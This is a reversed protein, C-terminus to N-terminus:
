FSNIKDKSVILMRSNNEETAFFIISLAIWPFSPNHSLLSRIENILKTLTQHTHFGKSHIVQGRGIEICDDPLQYSSFDNQEIECALMVMGVYESIEAFRTVDADSYIEPFKLGYEPKEIFTNKCQIVQCGADSFYKAVSSPCVDDDTTWMFNAPSDSFVNKLEHQLKSLDLKDQALNINFATFFINTLNIDFKLIM